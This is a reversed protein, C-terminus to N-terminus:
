MINIKKPNTFYVYSWLLSVYPENKLRFSWHQSHKIQFDTTLISTINPPNILVCVYYVRQRSKYKSLKIHFVCCSPGSSSMLFIKVDIELYLFYLKELCFTHITTYTLTFLIFFFITCAHIHTDTWAHTRISTDTWYTWHYYLEQTCVIRAPVMSYTSQLLQNALSCKGMHAHIYTYAHWTRPREISLMHSFTQPFTMNKVSATPTCSYFM